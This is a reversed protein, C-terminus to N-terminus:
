LRSVFTRWDVVSLLETDLFSMLDRRCTISYPKKGNGHEFLCAYQYQVLIRFHHRVEESHWPRLNPFRRNMANAVRKYAASRATTSHFGRTDRSWLVRHKRVEEVLDDTHYQDSARLGRPRKHSQKDHAPGTQVVAPASCSMRKVWSDLSRM